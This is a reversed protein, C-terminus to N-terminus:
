PSTNRPPCTQALPHGVYFARPILSPYPVIHKFLSIGSLMCSGLPSLAPTSQSQTEAFSLQEKYATQGLDVFIDLRDRLPLYAGLYMQPDPDSHGGRVLFFLKNTRYIFSELLIGQSDGIKRGATYLKVLGGCRSGSPLPAVSCCFVCFVCVHM